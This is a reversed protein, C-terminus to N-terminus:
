ISKVEHVKKQNHVFHLVLQNQRNRQLGKEKM